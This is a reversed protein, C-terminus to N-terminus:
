PGTESFAIGVGTTPTGAADTTTATFVTPNGGVVSATAPTLTITKTQAAAATTTATATDRPENTDIGPTPTTTRATTQNVWVTVTDSGSKTGKYTCTSTGSNNSATCSATFTAPVSSTAANPGATAAISPTVGTVGDGSANTLVATFTHAAGGVPSFSTQPTVVVTRVADVAADSDPLGGDTINLSLSKALDGPSQVEDGDASRFVDITAGGPVLGVVGLTITTSAGGSGNYTYVATDRGTPNAQGAPTSTSAVDPNSAPPGASPASTITTGASYTQTAGNGNVYHPRTTPTSVTGPTCFDVDQSATNPNETLRIVVTGTDTAPGGRSDTPTVTYTLCSGAAGHTPGSLGITAVPAASATAAVLPVGAAIAALATCAVVLRRRSLISVHVAPVKRRSDASTPSRACRLGCFTSADRVAGTALRVM